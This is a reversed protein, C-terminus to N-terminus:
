VWMTVSEWGDPDATQEERQLLTELRRKIEQAPMEVLLEQVERKRQQLAERNEIGLWALPWWHESNRHGYVTGLAGHLKQKVSHVGFNQVFADYEASYPLGVAEAFFCVAEFRETLNEITVRWNEDDVKTSFARALGLKVHYLSVLQKAKEGIQLQGIAFTPASSRERFTEGNLQLFFQLLVDHDISPDGILWRLLRMEESHEAGLTPLKPIAYYNQEAAGRIGRLADERVFEMHRHAPALVFDVLKDCEEDTLTERSKELLPAIDANSTEAFEAFFQQVATQNMALAEVVHARLAILQTKFSRFPVAAQQQVAAITLYDELQDGHEKRIERLKALRGQLSKELMDLKELTLERETPGMLKSLLGITEFEQETYTSLRLIEPGFTTTMNNGNSAGPILSLESINPAKHVTALSM